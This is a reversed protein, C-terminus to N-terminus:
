RRNHVAIINLNIPRCFFNHGLFRHSLPIFGKAPVHNLNIAMIKVLNDISATFGFRNNFFRHTNNRVGNSTFAYIKHFIIVTPM